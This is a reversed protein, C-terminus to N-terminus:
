GVSVLEIDFQLTKDALPHNGDLTVTEEAIDSITVYATGGDETRVELMMGLEPEVEPPLQEKRVEFALEANYSGYGEEPPVEVTTSEGPNLGVVAREFGAIVMNEGMVFELPDGDRSSDFVEGSDKFKGTYHVKVKDGKNAPAM